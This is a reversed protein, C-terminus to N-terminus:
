KTETKVETGEVPTTATPETILGAKVSDEHTMVTPTVTTETATPEVILKADVSDQHSMTKQDSSNCATFAFAAIAIILLKKM